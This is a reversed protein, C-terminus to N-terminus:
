MVLGDVWIALSTSNAVKNDSSRAVDPYDQTAIKKNNAMKKTIANQIAGLQVPTIKPARM